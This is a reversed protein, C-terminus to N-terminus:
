PQAPGDTKAVTNIVRQIVVIQVHIHRAVDPLFESVFNDIPATALGIGWRSASAPLNTKRGPVYLNNVEDSIAAGVIDGYNVMGKGDDGQTWVVQGIAHRVRRPITANPMRHYHPDQHVVSPVLFTAFFEGTIDQTFSVGVNRGFGAMGPGYASDPDSGVAIAADALITLGNFPDLVNRMALRAKEKPTLPKVQPGTIFRHYWNTPPPPLCSAPATATASPPNSSGRAPCSVTLTASSGALIAPQPQPAEPLDSKSGEAQEAWAINASWLLAGLILAASSISARQM